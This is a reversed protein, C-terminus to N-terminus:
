IHPLKGENIVQLEDYDYVLASAIVPTAVETPSVGHVTRIQQPAMQYSFNHDDHKTYYTLERTHPKLSQKMPFITRSIARDYLTKYFGAVDVKYDDALHIFEGAGAM